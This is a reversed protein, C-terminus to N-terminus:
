CSVDKGESGFIALREEQATKIATAPAYHFQVARRRQTSSNAPTGHHLLSHFFLAGGPKLPVARAGGHRDHTDCIQWDRRQFHVVPGQRHSGPYIVMCGNDVTAEDLAIWVGVVTSTLPLDFYAHDQHWPKERGIRPPKILAMDQHLIPEDGVMERAVRLLEPHSAIGKLREEYDVFWMFKRVYDQREEASLAAVDVGKARKEYMVGSYTPHQGSLLYLLGDLAGQVESPSFAQQVVLYGQEHFAAIQEATVDALRDVGSLLGRAQYLDAPYNTGEGYDFVPENAPKNYDVVFSEIKSM